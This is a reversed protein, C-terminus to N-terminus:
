KRINNYYRYRYEISVRPAKRNDRDSLSSSRRIVASTVINLPEVRTIKYIINNNYTLFIIMIIIVSVAAPFLLSPPAHKGYVIIYWAVWPPLESRSGNKKPTHEIIIIVCSGIIYQINYTNYIIVWYGITILQTCMLLPISSQALNNNDDLRMAAAIIRIYIIIIIINRTV